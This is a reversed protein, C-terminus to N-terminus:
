VDLFEKGYAVKTANGLKKIGKCNDGIITNRAFVDWLFLRASVMEYTLRVYM